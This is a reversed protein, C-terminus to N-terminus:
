GHGGGAETKGSRGLRSEERPHSCVRQSEDFRVLGQRASMNVLKSVESPKLGLIESIKEGSRAGERLLLMIESLAIKDAILEKFLRNLEDSAYYERYEEEKQFHMRLREREVLRMYPIISKVAELKFALRKPDLGEARGLPGLEIIRKSVDNMIEAFRIGESAGVWEIALREPNVGIHALVKKMLLVNSLAHYNGETAYHCEGPWCGGLYVGDAGNSFARLIFALDVRGTCM